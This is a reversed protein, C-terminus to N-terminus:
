IPLSGDLTLAGDTTDVTARYTAHRTTREIEVQVERVRTVGEVGSIAATLVQAAIEANAPRQGVVERWPVGALRDLFHEGRWFHLRQTIRQRTAEIGEILAFVLDGNGADLTIGM